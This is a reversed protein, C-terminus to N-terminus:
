LDERYTKEAGAADGVALQLVGLSHRVPYYWNPPENYPLADELAVAETLTAIAGELDGRAAQIEGALVRDAVALLDAGRDKGFFLLEEIRPDARLEALRQAEAVAGDVDGTGLLARGRAYHWIGRAYLLDADPAPTDLIRDWAAFRVQAFLPQMLFHQAVAMGPARLLEPTLQGATGEAMEFAQESWGEIAASIWGFHWNHPIYGALYIPSNSRCASVFAADADTAKMNNVTADHYRGVRIYIHAPMHVLHGAAPALDALKDAYPEARHAERSQEVAHIYLHIAGVHNPEQALTRELIDVIEATWPREEGDALWFDWPHLDM